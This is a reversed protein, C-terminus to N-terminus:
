IPWIHAVLCACVSIGPNRQNSVKHDGPDPKHSRTLVRVYDHMRQMYTGGESSSMVTSLIQKLKRSLRFDWGLSHM